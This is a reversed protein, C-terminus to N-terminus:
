DTAASTAADFGGALRWQEVREEYHRRKDFPDTGGDTYHGSFMGFLLDSAQCGAVGLFAAGILAKLGFRRM